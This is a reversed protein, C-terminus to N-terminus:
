RLKRPRRGVNHMKGRMFTQLLSQARAFAALLNVKFGARLIKEKIVFAIKVRVPCLEYHARRESFGGIVLREHRCASGAIYVCDARVMAGECHRLLKGCAIKGFYGVAASAYSPAPLQHIGVAHKCAPHIHLAEGGKHAAVRCAQEAHRAAASYGLVARRVHYYPIAGYAAGYGIRVALMIAVVCGEVAHFNLATRLM